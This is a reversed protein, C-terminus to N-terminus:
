SHFQCSETNQRVNVSWILIHINKNLFLLVHINYKYYLRKQNYIESLRNWILVQNLLVESTQHFHHSLHEGTVLGKMTESFSYVLFKEYM